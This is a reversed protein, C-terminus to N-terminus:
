LWTHSGMGQEAFAAAAFPTAVSVLAAPSASGADSQPNKPFPSATSFPLSQSSETWGWGKLQLSSGATHVASPGFGMEQPVRWDGFGQSKALSRGPLWAVSVKMADRRAFGARAM